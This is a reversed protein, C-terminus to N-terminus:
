GRKVEGEEKEGHHGEAYQSRPLRSFDAIFCSRAMKSPECTPNLSLASHHRRGLVHEPVRHWGIVRDCCYCYNLVPPLLLRRTAADTQMRSALLEQRHQAEERRALDRQQVIEKLKDGEQEFRPETFKLLCRMDVFEKMAGILTHFVFASADHMGLAHLHQEIAMSIAEFTSVGSERTRKRLASFLAEYEKSITLSVRPVCRSIHRNLSLAQGWTSDLLILHFKDASPPASSVGSASTRPAGVPETHLRDHIFGDLEPAGREPYLLLHHVRYPADCSRHQGGEVTVSAITAYESTAPLQAIYTDDEPVGWVRLPAGLLFAALHGTNTSRFVEEAHLLITLQFAGSLAEAPLAARYERLKACMCVGMPFWCWLCLGRIHARWLNLSLRRRVSVMHREKVPTGALFAKWELTEEASLYITPQAAADPTTISGYRLAFGLTGTHTSKGQAEQTVRLLHQAIREQEAASREPMTAESTGYGRLGIYDLLRLMSQKYPNSEVEGDTLHM